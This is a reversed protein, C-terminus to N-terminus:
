VVRKTGARDFNSSTYRMQRSTHQKTTTANATQLVCGHLCATGGEKFLAHQPMSAYKCPRGQHTACCRIMETRGSRVPAATQIRAFSSRTVRPAPGETCPAQLLAFASLAPHTCAFLGARSLPSQTKSYTTRGPDHQLVPANLSKSRVRPPVDRAPGRWATLM